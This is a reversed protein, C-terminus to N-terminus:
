QLGRCPCRDRRHSRHRTRPCSDTQPSRIRSQTARSAGIVFADSHSSRTRRRQRQRLCMGPCTRRGPIGRHLPRLCGRGSSSLRTRSANWLARRRSRSRIRLPPPTRAPCTQVPALILLATCRQGLAAFGDRLRATASNAFAATGPVALLLETKACVFDPSLQPILRVVERPGPVAEDTLLAAFSPWQAQVFDAKNAQSALLRVLRVGEPGRSSSLVACSGGGRASRGRARTASCSSTSSLRVGLDSACCESWPEPHSQLLARDRRACRGRWLFAAAQVLGAFFGFDDFQAVFNLAEPVFLTRV